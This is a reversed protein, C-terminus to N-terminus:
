CTQVYRVHIHQVDGTRGLRTNNPTCPVRPALSRSGVLKGCENCRFVRALSAFHGRHEEPAPEALATILKCYLRGQLRDKRDRLQEVEANNFM